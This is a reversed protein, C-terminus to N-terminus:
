GASRGPVEVHSDINASWRLHSDADFIIFGYEPYTDLWELTRVQDSFLATALADAVGLAPGVVSVGTVSAEAVAPGWIHDGREYTGSSAVAGRNVSVIAGISDPAQPLRVGVQWTEDDAPAGCCLVDGGAYIAFNEAGATQLLLAAEDVSWGKVYGSPDISPSGPRRISFRGGTTEEFEECLALVHRVDRDADQPALEGRGIRSIQSNPKFTSFRDEVGAWWAFVDDVVEPDIEDDVRVTFVTGM